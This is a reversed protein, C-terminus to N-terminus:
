EKDFDKLLVSNQLYLFLLTLVFSSIGTMCIILWRIPYSKKDAPFARNIVFRNTLNADLEIRVNEKELRIVELQEQVLELQEFLRFYAGGHTALKNFEKKLAKAGSSNGNSLAKAYYETLREAQLSVDLVGYSRLVELSDYINFLRDSLERDRRELILFAQEAREKKVRSVVPDILDVIRNSMDAAMQSNKDLVQINISMLETKKFSFHEDFALNMSTKAYKAGSDIEYHTYLAFEDIITNKMEDSNLIQIMRESELEEGFELVDKRYPNHEVLLAQSISNTTTPYIVANSKFKPTIFWSSSGIAAFFSAILTIFLLPNRWKYIDLILNGSNSFSNKNM